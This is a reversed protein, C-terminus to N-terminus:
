SQRQHHPFHSVRAATLILLELPPNLFLLFSGFLEPEYQPLGLVSNLYSFGKPPRLSHIDEQQTLAAPLWHLIDLPYHDELLPYLLVSM